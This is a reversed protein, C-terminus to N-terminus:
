RTKGAEEMRALVNALAGLSDSPEQEQSKLFRAGASGGLRADAGSSGHRSGDRRTRDTPPSASPDPTREPGFRSTTGSGGGPLPAAATPRPPRAHRGQGLHRPSAGPSAATSAESFGGGRGGLDAAEASVTSAIIRRSRGTRRSPSPTERASEMSQGRWGGSGDSALPPRRSGSAGGAQPAGERLDQRSGAPGGARGLKPPRGSGGTEGESSSPKPSRGRSAARIGSGALHVEPGEVATAGLTLDAKPAEQLAALLLKRHEMEVERMCFNVTDSSFQSCTALVQILQPRLSEAEQSVPAGHVAARGGKTRELHSGVASLMLSVVDRQACLRLGHESLLTRLLVVSRMPMESRSISTIVMKTVAECGVKPHQALERVLKDGAVGVKVDIVGSMSSREMLTPFVKGLGMNIDLGSLSPALKSVATQCLEVACLFVSRDAGVPSGLVQLLAMCISTFAEEPGSGSRAAAQAHGAIAKGILRMAAIVAKEDGRAPFALPALAEAGCGVWACFAAPVQWARALGGHGSSALPVASPVSRAEEEEPLKLFRKMQALTKGKVEKPLAAVWAARAPMQAADDGLCRLHLKCILAYLRGSEYRVTADNHLLGDKLRLWEGPHTAGPNQVISKHHEKALDRLLALRCYWGTAPGLSAKSNGGKALSMHNEKDDDNPDKAPVLHRLVLMALALPSVINGVPPRLLRLLAQSTQARASEKTDAMRACLQRLLPALHAVLLRDDVTGCFAPVANTVAACAEAYVRVNQDGLGEHIARMAGDLLEGLASSSSGDSGSLQEIRQAISASLHMLAAVRCQWQRSYFCRTWGDGFLVVLPAVFDVAVEELAEALPLAQRMVEEAEALDPAEDAGPCATTVNFFKVGDEEEGSGPLVPSQGTEEDIARPTSHVSNDSEEVDDGLGAASTGPRGFTSGTRPRFGGSGRTSAKSRAATSLRGTSGLTMTFGTSGMATGQRTSSTGLRGLGGPGVAGTLPRMAGTVPRTSRSALSVQECAAEAAQRAAGGCEKLTDLLANADRRVDASRHEAARAACDALGRWTEDMWKGGALSGQQVLRLLLQLRPGTGRDCDSTDKGVGAAPPATSWASGSAVSQAVMESLACNHLATVELIAEMAKARVKNSTDLMRALMPPLLPELFLPAIYLPMQSSVLRLLDAGACFVATVTDLLLQGLASQLTSVRHGRLVYQSLLPGGGDGDDTAELLKVGDGSTALESALAEISQARV